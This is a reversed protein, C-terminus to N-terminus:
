AAETDAVKVRWQGTLLKQMLGRKQTQLLDRQKRVLAIEKDLLDFIEARRKQIDKSRTQLSSGIPLSPMPWAFSRM